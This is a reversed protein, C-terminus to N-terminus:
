RVNQIEGYVVTGDAMVKYAQVTSIGYGMWGAVYNYKLNALRPAQGTRTAAYTRGNIIVGIEVFDSDDTSIYTNYIVRQGVRSVLSHVLMYKFEDTPAPTTNAADGTTGSNINESGETSGSFPADLAFSDWLTLMAPAAALNDPTYTDLACVSAFKGRLGFTLDRRDKKNLINGALEAETKWDITREKVGSVKVNDPTVWYPIYICSEYEDWWTISAADAACSGDPPTIMAVGLYGFLRKNSGDEFFFMDAISYNKPSGVIDIGSLVGYVVTARPSKPVSDHIVDFGVYKYATCDVGTTLYLNHPLWPNQSATEEAYTIHYGARLYTDPVCRVNYSNGAVPAVSTGPVDRTFRDTVWKGAETGSINLPNTDQNDAQPATDHTWYGGYIYNEPVRQTLNTNAFAVNNPVAKVLKEVSTYTGDNNMTYTYVIYYQCYPLAFLGSPTVNSDLTGNDDADPDTPYVGSDSTNTNFTDTTLKDVPTTKDFKIPFEIILKEGAPNPVSTGNADVNIGCYHANYNYGEAKVYDLMVQSGNVSTYPTVDFRVALNFSETSSPRTFTAISGENFSSATGVNWATDAAFTYATYDLPNATLKTTDVNTLKATYISAQSALTGTPIDCFESVVDLITSQANLDDKGLKYLTERAILTFVSNLQAANQASFYYNSDAARTYTNNDIAAASPYNSSVYHMFRNSGDEIDKTSIPNNQSDYQQVIVRGEGNGLDVVNDLPLIPNTYSAGYFIGISYVPIGKDKISKAYGLANNCVELSYNNTYTPAGDSFLIVVQARSENSPVPNADIIQKAMLMGRDTRTAGDATLANIANTVSTRGAATNMSSLPTGTLNVAPTTDILGKGVPKQNTTTAPSHNFQVGNNSNIQVGTLLETNNYYRNPYYSSYLYYSSFGVIAIRHNLDDSTYPTNDAGNAHTQVANAFANMASKLAQLRTYSAGSASYTYFNGPVTTNYYVGNALTYTTTGIKYSIYYQYYSGNWYRTTTVPYYNGNVLIRLAGAYNGTNYDYLNSAWNTYYSSPLKTYSGAAETTFNWGMSGSQDLVLVFDVPINNVSSSGTVFSELRIKGFLNDETASPDPIFQKKLYLEGDFSVGGYGEQIPDAASLPVTLLLMISMLIILLKTLQKM